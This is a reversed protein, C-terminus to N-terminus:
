PLPYVLKELSDEESNFPFYRQEIDDILPTLRDFNYKLVQMPLPLDEITEIKGEKYLLRLLSICEALGRRTRLLDLEILGHENAELLYGNLETTGDIVGQFAEYAKQYTTM